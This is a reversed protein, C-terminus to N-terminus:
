NAGPVRGAGLRAEARNRLEMETDLWAINRGKWAVSGFEYSYLSRLLLWVEVLMMVPLNFLAIWWGTPSIKTTLILHALWWSLGSVAGLVLRIDMLKGARFAELAFLMPMLLAVMTGLVLLMVNAPSRDAGVYYGRVASDWLSSIKKRAYAGDDATSFAYFYSQQRYLNKAYVQEPNVVGPMSRFDGQRKLEARRIMWLGSYVPTRRLAYRFAVQWLLRLPALANALFDAHNQQPQVSIMKHVYYECYQVMRSITKPSLRTDAGVFLAYQGSSANVLQQHAWNQGLWGLPAESGTILRVKNDAYLEVISKTTDNSCDDLVVVEMRDYDSGLVSEICDVLAHGENRAAILVSVTPRKEATLPPTQYIKNSFILRISNFLASVSIVLSVGLMIDRLTGINIFQVIESEVLALTSYIACIVTTGNRISWKLRTPESRGSGYRWVNLAGFLCVVISFLFLIPNSYENKAWLFCPVLMAGAALRALIVSFTSKKRGVVVSALLNCLCFVLVALLVTKNEM